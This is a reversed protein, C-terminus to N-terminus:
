QLDLIKWKLTHKHVITKKWVVVITATAKRWGMTIKHQCRPDVKDWLHLWQGYWYTHLCLSVIFMYSLQNWLVMYTWSSNGSLTFRRRDVDLKHSCEYTLVTSNRHVKLCHLDNLIWLFWAEDVTIGCTSLQRSLSTHNNMHLCCIHNQLSRMHYYPQHQQTSRM